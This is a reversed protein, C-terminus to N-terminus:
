SPLLGRCVTCCIWWTKFRKELWIVKKLPPVRKDFSQQETTFSLAWLVSHLGKRPSMHDTTVPLCQALWRIIWSGGGPWTWANGWGPAGSRRPEPDSRSPPPTSPLFHLTLIVWASQLGSSFGMLVCKCLLVLLESESNLKCAATMCILGNTLLCDEVGWEELTQKLIECERPKATRFVGRGHCLSYLLIQCIHFVSM